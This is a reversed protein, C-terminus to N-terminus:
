LAALATNMIDLNTYYDLHDFGGTSGAGIMVSNTGGNLFSIAVGDDNEAGIFTDLNNIVNQGGSKTEKLVGDIWHKQEVAGTREYHVITNSTIVNALGRAQATTIAIASSVMRNLITSISTGMVAGSTFTELGAIFAADGTTFNVGDTNCNFGSQLYQTTGNYAFGAGATYTPANVATSSFAGVWSILANAELQLRHSEFFDMLALNGSTVQSDVFAAMIDKEDTTLGTMKNFVSQADASYVTGSTGRNRKMMQTAYYIEAQTAM